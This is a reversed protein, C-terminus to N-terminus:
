RSRILGGSVLILCYVYIDPPMVYSGSLRRGPYSVGLGKDDEEEGRRSRSGREEGREEQGRGGRKGRWQMALQCNSGTLTMEGVEWPNLPHLEPALHGGGWRSGSEGGALLRCARLNPKPGAEE